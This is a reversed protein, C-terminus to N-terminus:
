SATVDTITRLFASSYKRFRPRPHGERRVCLLLALIIRSARFNFVNLQLHLRLARPKVSNQAPLAVASLTAKGAGTLHKNAGTDVSCRTKPIGQARDRPLDVDFPLQAIM